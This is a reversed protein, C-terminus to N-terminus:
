PTSGKVFVATVSINRAVLNNSANVVCPGSEVLNPVAYITQSGAGVSYSNTVSIPYRQGAAFVGATIEPAAGPSNLNVSTLLQGGTFNAASAAGCPTGVKELDASATVLLTGASPTTLTTQCSFDGSQLPGSCANGNGVSPGAAGTTGTPGTVGDIGSPGTPGAVGTAGTPGEVGNAGNTGNTGAPGSPGTPGTRLWRTASGFSLCQAGRSRHDTITLRTGKVCAYATRAHGSSVVANAAVATGGLAVFLAIYAVATAHKGRFIGM